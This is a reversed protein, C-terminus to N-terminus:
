SYKSPELQLDIENKCGTVVENYEVDVFSVSWMKVIFHAFSSGGVRFTGGYGFTAGDYTWIVVV